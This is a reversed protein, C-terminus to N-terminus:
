PLKKSKNAKALETKMKEAAEPFAAEAETEAAVCLIGIAKILSSIVIVVISYVQRM